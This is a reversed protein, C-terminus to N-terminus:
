MGGLRAAIRDFIPKAELPITYFDNYALRRYSFVLFYYKHLIIQGKIVIEVNLYFVFVCEKVIYGVLSVTFLILSKDKEVTFRSIQRKKTAM